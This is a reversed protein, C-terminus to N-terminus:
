WPLQFGLNNILVIKINLRRFPVLKTNKGYNQLSSYVAFAIEHM